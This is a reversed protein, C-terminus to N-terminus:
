GEKSPPTPAPPELPKRLGVSRLYESQEPDGFAFLFKAPDNGFHDRVSSPLTAFAQQAERITDISHQYDLNDPLEGWAPQVSNVHAIVGTRKYAAIINHIDCEAKHSQKTRSAGVTVAKVRPHPRFFSL